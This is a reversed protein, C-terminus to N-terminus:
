KKNYVEKVKNEGNLKSRTFKEITLTKHDDSLKYTNAYLFDQAVGDVEDTM